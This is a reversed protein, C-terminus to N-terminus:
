EFEVSGQIRKREQKEWWLVPTRPPWGRFCSVELNQGRCSIYVVIYWTYVFRSDESILMCIAEMRVCAATSAISKLLGYFINGITM